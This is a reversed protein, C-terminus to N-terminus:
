RECSKIICIVSLTFNNAKSNSFRNSSDSSSLMVQPRNLQAAKNALRMYEVFLQRMPRGSAERWKLWVEVLESYNSM